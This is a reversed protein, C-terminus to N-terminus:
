KSPLLPMLKECEIVGTICDALTTSDEPFPVKEAVKGPIPSIPVSVKIPLDELDQMTNYEYMKQRSNTGRSIATTGNFFVTADPRHKAILERLDKQHKKLSLSANNM